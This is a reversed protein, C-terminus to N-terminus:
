SQGEPIQGLVAAVLQDCQSGDFPFLDRTADDVKRHLMAQLLRRARHYRTKVTAPKIDLVAAAEAVSLQEVARLVFV